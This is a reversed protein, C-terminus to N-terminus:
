DIASIVIINGKVYVKRSAKLKVVAAEKRWVQELVDVVTRSQDRPNLAFMDEETLTKRYGTM